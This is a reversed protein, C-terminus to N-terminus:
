VIINWYLGGRFPYNFSTKALYQAFHCFIRNCLSFCLLYTLVFSHFCQEPAGSWNALALCGSEEKVLWHQRNAPNRVSSLRFSIHPMQEMCVAATYKWFGIFQCSCLLFASPVKGPHVCVISLMEAAYRGFVSSYLVPFNEGTVWKFPM